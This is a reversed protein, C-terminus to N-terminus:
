CEWKQRSVSVDGAKPCFCSALDVVAQPSEQLEQMREFCELYQSGLMQASDSPAWVARAWGCNVRKLQAAATGATKEPPSGFELQPPTSEDAQVRHGGGPSDERKQPTEPFKTAGGM